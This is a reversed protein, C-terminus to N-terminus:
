QNSSCGSTPGIAFAAAMGITPTKTNGTRSAPLRQRESGPSSTSDPPAPKQQRRSGAPQVHQPPQELEKGLEAWPVRERDIRREQRGNERHDSSRNQERRGSQGARQAPAM